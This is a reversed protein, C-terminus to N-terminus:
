ELCNCVRTFYVSWGLLRPFPDKIRQPPLTGTLGKQLTAPYIRSVLTRWIKIGVVVIVFKRGSEKGAQNEGEQAALIAGEIGFESREPRCLLSSYKM